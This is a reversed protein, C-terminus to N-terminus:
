GVIHNVRILGILVRRGDRHLGVLAGRVAFQANLVGGCRDGAGASEAQELGAVSLPGIWDWGLDDRPRVIACYDGPHAPLSPSSWEGRGASDESSPRRGTIDM